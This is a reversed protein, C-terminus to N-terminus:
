AGRQQSRKSAFSEGAFMGGSAKTGKGKMIEGIAVRRTKDEEELTIAKCKRILEETLEKIVM